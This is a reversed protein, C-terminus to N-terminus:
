TRDKLRTDIYQFITDIEDEALHIESLLHRIRARKEKLDIQLQFVPVDLAQSITIIEQESLTERGKLVEALHFFSLGSKQALQDLGIQTETLHKQIVQVPRSVLPQDAFFYSLPVHFFTALQKIIKLSPERKDNQIQSLYPTSISTGKSLETINLNYEDMLNKLRQGIQIQDFNQSM